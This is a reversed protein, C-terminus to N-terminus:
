RRLVELKDAVGAAQRSASGWLGRLLDFDQDGEEVYWNDFLIGKVDKLGVGVFETNSEQDFGNWLEFRFDPLQVGVFGGKKATWKVRKAQTAEILMQCIDRYDEPIPM